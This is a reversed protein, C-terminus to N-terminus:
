SAPDCRSRLVENTQDVLGVGTHTARLTLYMGSQCSGVVHLFDDRDVNHVDELCEDVGDEVDFQGDDVDGVGVDNTVDDCNVEDDSEVDPKRDPHM